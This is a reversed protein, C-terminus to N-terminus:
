ASFLSAFFGTIAVGVSTFFSAVADWFGTGYTAAGTIAAGPVSPEQETNEQEVRSQQSEAPQPQSAESREETPGTYTDRDSIHRRGSGQAPPTQKKSVTVIVEQSDILNGDSVVVTVIHEGVNVSTTQWEGKEDFPVSFTYTLEDGDPDSATPDIKVLDGETAVIDALEDLVPARNVNNVTITTTQSTALTGDSVTVTTAYVGADEFDTQWEGNTGLPESFTYAVEDGDPDAVAPVVRVLEGENVMIDAIRDLVPARNVDISGSFEEPQALVVRLGSVRVVGNEAGEFKIPINYRLSEFPCRTIHDNVEATFDVVYEEPYVLERNLNGWFGVKMSLDLPEKNPIGVYLDEFVNYAAGGDMWVKVYIDEGTFHKCLGLFEHTGPSVLDEDYAGEFCSEWDQGNDSVSIIIRDKSWESGDNPPDGPGSNWTNVKILIDEDQYNVGEFKEIIQGERMQVGDVEGGFKIKAEPNDPSGNSRLGQSEYVDTAQIVIGPINGLIPDYSGLEADYYVYENLLKYGEVQFSAESVTSGEPLQLHYTVPDTGLEIDVPMRAETFSNVMPYLRAYWDFSDTDPATTSVAISGSGETNAFVNGFESDSAMVLVAPGETEATFMIEEGVNYKEKDTFISAASITSVVLLACLAMCIIKFVSKM